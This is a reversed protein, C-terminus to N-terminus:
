ELNLLHSYIDIYEYMCVSLIYNYINLYNYILWITM